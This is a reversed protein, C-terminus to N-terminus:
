DQPAPDAPPQQLREFAQRAKELRRETEKLRRDDVKKPKEVKAPGEAIPAPDGSPSREPQGAVHVDVERIWGARQTGHTDRELLVWYWRGEKNLVDLVTDVAVTTMVDGNFMPRSMVRANEAVVRVTLPEASAASAAMFVMLLSRVVM